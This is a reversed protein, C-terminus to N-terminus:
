KGSQELLLKTVLDIMHNQGAIRGRREGEWYADESNSFDMSELEPPEEIKRVAIDGIIKELLASVRNIWWVAVANRIYIDQFGESPYTKVFERRLNNM